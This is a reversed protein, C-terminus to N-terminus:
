CQISTSSPHPRRTLWGAEPLARALVDSGPRSPRREGSLYPGVPLDELRYGVLVLTELGQRAVLSPPLCSAFCHYLVLERLRPAQLLLAQLVADGWITGGSLLLSRLDQLASCGQLAAAETLPSGQLRLATLPKGAPVLAALLQQLSAPFDAGTVELLGSAGSPDAEYKCSVLQAGGM